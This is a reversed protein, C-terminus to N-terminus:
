VGGGFNNCVKRSREVAAKQLELQEKKRAEKDAKDQAKKAEAAAKEEAKSQAKAEEAAAKDEDPAATTDSGFPNSFAPPASRTEGGGSTGGTSEGYSPLSFDLTEFTKGGFGGPAGISLMLNSYASSSSVVEQIM